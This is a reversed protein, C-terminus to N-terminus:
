TKKELRGVVAALEPALEVVVRRATKFAEHTWLRCLGSPHPLILMRGGGQQEVEHFPQFPLGFASCVKSGCLVLRAGERVALESAKERAERVRWPGACLNVREFSELYDKRHMRFILCCLRWGASGDPSPYLAYYPDAGYPNSEGVLIPKGAM